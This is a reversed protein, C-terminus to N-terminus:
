RATQATVDRVVPQAVDEFVTRISADVELGAKSPQCSYLRGKIASQGTPGNPCTVNQNQVSKM